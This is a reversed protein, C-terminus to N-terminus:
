DKQILELAKKAVYEPAVWSNLDNPEEQWDAFQQKRFYSIDKYININSNHGFIRPDSKSYIVVGPKNLFACFHHFFNDVSIWTNASIVLKELDKFYLNNYREINPYIDPETGVGLQIVNTNSNTLLECVKSWHPYNKANTNGNRLPQSFPSILVTRM